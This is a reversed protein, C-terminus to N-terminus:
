FGIFESKTENDDSWAGVTMGRKDRADRAHALLNIALRFVESKPKGTERALKEIEEALAKNVDVTFRYKEM